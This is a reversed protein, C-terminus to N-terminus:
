VKPPQTGSLPSRAHKLGDWQSGSQTNMHIEDDLATFGHPALDVIKHEFTKRGISPFNVNDLSWDLQVRRGTKVQKSRTRSRPHPPQTSITDAVMTNGEEMSPSLPCLSKLHKSGLEDKKGDRDFFGWACGQPMDKVPPM